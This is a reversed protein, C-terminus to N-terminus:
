RRYGRRATVNGRKKVTVEIPHWGDAAVGTPSYTLWYRGRFETLVRVFADRLRDSRDTEIYKGGTEAALTPLFSKRLEPPAVKPIDPQLGSRVDVLFGTAPEMRGRLGVGYVVASSRRALDLVASGPLWSATDDGDSFVLVLPRGSEPDELTLAALVADHLATSGAAEVTDIAYLIQARDATWDAALDIEQSFTLVAARDRAHLSTAAAAAAQKLHHLPEGAVSRSTDLALLVSLPTEEFSVTDIRQLVGSDRLEFDAATLGQVVRDGDRVLVDVRVADVGVRFLQQAASTMGALLVAAAVSARTLIKM